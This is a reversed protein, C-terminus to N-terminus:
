GIKSLEECIPFLLDALETICVNNQEVIKLYM